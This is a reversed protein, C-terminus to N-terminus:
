FIDAKHEGKGNKMPLSGATVHYKLVRGPLPCM